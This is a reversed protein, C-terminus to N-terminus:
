SQVPQQLFFETRPWMSKELLSSVISCSTEGSHPPQPLPSISLSLSSSCYLASLCFGSDKPREEESIVDWFQQWIRKTPLSASPGAEVPPSLAVCPQPYRSAPIIFLRKLPPGGCVFEPIAFLFLGELNLKHRDFSSHSGVLSIVYQIRHKFAFSKPM